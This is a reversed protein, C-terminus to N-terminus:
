PGADDVAVLAPAPASGDISATYTGKRQGPIRATGVGDGGAEIDVRVVPKTNFLIKHAAGDKATVTVAIPLQPPVTIQGPSFTGDTLTFAAPVRIGEEDGADAETRTPVGTTATPTTVIEPEAQGLQDTNAPASLAATAATSTTKGDDGGCGAGVLLGAGLVVAILATRTSSAL